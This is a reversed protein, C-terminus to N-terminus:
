NNKFCDGNISFNQKYILMLAILHGYNKNYQYIM